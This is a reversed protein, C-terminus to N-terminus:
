AAGTRRTPPARGIRVLKGVPDEGPWFQRAASETMIVVRPASRGDRETFMRGRLLPIGLSAFYDPTTALYDLIPEGSPPAPRGQIELDRTSAGAKLPLRSIAGASAVGPLQAIRELAQKLFDARQEPNPYRSQPMSLQLTLVGHPNFGGPEAILRAFSRILLGAGVLLVAALAVELVVLANRMRHAGAGSSSGRGGERLAAQLDPKALHLAPFLRFVIGAALAVVATFALIRGDLHLAVGGLTEAPLMAELPKMGLQGLLVGLTGGAIALVISETLLQRVLRWRGAGLAGRISMEKQRTAGRALFLNAVNACAILLLAAVAGLLILLATKRDGVLNERLPVVVAGSFEEDNGFQQKARAIITNAEARAQALTVGPKLRGVVDLFHTGRDHSPDDNPRLEHEPLPFRASLWLEGGAPFEFRPPMVGLITVSEGDIDVAKGLIAPDAGYRKQWLQYGLIARRATGPRDQQPDFTRGFQAQVGLTAFFDTTVVSGAAREPRDQGTLNFSHQRYAALHALSSAQTRLDTIDGAGLGGPRGEASRGAVVVLRDSEPFPLPKLLAADIASFIATNAGIGLALTVVAAITFAPAHTLTRLAYRLDQRLCDWWLWRHGEFFREEASTLNGFARRAAARADDESLGEARLRDAELRIHAEIEASFDTDSRRRRLM